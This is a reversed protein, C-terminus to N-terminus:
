CNKEQECFFALFKERVVYATSVSRNEGLSAFRSHKDNTESQTQQYSLMVQQDGEKDIVINHLLCICQVIVDVFDPGVEIGKHLVRWKSSIIGFACEIVQRAKSLRRNFITHPIGAQSAPFPRMLYTKLPYAEDGLIVHPVKINTGPLETLRKVGLAGKELSTSLRSHSFIGGDSEKGFAGVDITIFKYDPGAVGQLVISFYQKYNRYMSGAHHPNRIRVHKGDICGVCNPFKWKSWFGKVISNIREETPYPMHVTNLQEWIAKCTEQIIRGVTVDSIRFSYGLSKFSSGTALYRYFYSNRYKRAYTASIIHIIIHHM